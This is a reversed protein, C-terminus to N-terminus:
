TEESRTQGTDESLAIDLVARIYDGTERIKGVGYEFTADLTSILIRGRRHATRECVALVNKGDGTKLLSIGDAPGDFVGHYHWFFARTPLNPFVRGTTPEAILDLTRKERWWSSDV